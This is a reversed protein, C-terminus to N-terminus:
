ALPRTLWDIVESPATLWQRASKPPPLALRGGHPSREGLWCSVDELKGQERLAQALEALDQWHQSLVHEALIRFALFYREPIGLDAYASHHSYRLLVERRIENLRPERETVDSLMRADTHSGPWWPEGICLVEAAFGAAGILADQLAESQEHSVKGGSEGIFVESVSLGCLWAMVAHGAEHYALRELQKSDM